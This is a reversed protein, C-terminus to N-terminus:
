SSDKPTHGFKKHLELYLAQERTQQEQKREAELMVRLDRETPTEERRQYIYLTDTDTYADPTWDSYLEGDRHEGRARDFAANIRDIVSKQSGELDYKSISVHTNFSVLRPKPKTRKM